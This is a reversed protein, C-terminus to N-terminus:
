GAAFGLTAAEFTVGDSSTELSYIDSLSQLDFSRRGDWTVTTFAVDTIFEGAPIGLDANTVDYTVSGISAELEPTLGDGDYATASFPVEIASEDTNVEANELVGFTTFPDDYNEVVVASAPVAAAVVFASLAFRTTNLM